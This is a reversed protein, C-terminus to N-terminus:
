EVPLPQLDAEVFSQKAELSILRGKSYYNLLV